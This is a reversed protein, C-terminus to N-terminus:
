FGDNDYAGVAVGMGNGACRLAAKETVDDFTGDAKQRFLRNWYAQGSKSPITGKPTPDALPAGNVFFIDLRGDNDYDFLAVRAGMTEPLYKKSTHSALYQFRAGVASTIDVFGAPTPKALGPAESSQLSAFTGLSLVGAMLGPLFRM